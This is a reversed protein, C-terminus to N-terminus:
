QAPDIVCILDGGEVATPGNLVVRAVLGACPAAITSEMKMAEIGAVVQGAEVQDGPTVRPTAAGAFPAAVHGPNNPDAREARAVEAQISVDRVKVACSATWRACCPVSQGSTLSRSRRWRRRDVPPWQRRRLGLEVGAQLGYLWCM